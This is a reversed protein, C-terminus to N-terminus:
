IVNYSKLVLILNLILISIGFFYPFFSKIKSFFSKKNNSFGGYAEKELEEESKVGIKKELKNIKDNLGTIISLFDIIQEDIQELRTNTTKLIGIFETLNQIAEISQSFSEITEKLSKTIALIDKIENNKSNISKNLIEILEPIHVKADVLTEQIIDETTKM